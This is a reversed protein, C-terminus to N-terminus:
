ALEDGKESTKLVPRSGKSEDLEEIIQNKDHTGRAASSDEATKQDHCHRHLLQMNKYEDKGGQSKPIIHDIELLDGDKFYLGCKACKGQQQKLLKAKNAPLDPHHGM